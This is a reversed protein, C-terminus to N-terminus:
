KESNKEHFKQLAEKVVEAAQQAKNETRFYNGFNYRRADILLGSEEDNEIEGDSSIYWYNYDEWHGECESESVDISNKARWLKPMRSEPETYPNQCTLCLNREEVGIIGILGQIDYVIGRQKDKYVKKITYEDLRDQGVTQYVKDGVKFKPEVQASSKPLCAWAVNQQETTM